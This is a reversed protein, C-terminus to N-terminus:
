ISHLESKLVAQRGMLVREVHRDNERQQQIHKITYGIHAIQRRIMWRRVTRYLPLMSLTFLQRASM